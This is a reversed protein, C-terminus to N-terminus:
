GQMEYINLVECELLGTRTPSSYDNEIAVGGMVKAQVDFLGFPVDIVASGMLGGNTHVRGLFAPESMDHATDSSSTYTEYPPNDGETRATEIVARAEEVEAGRGLQFVQNLYNLSSPTSTSEQNTDEEQNIRSQLYSGVMNLSSVGTTSSENKLDGTLCLAFNSDDEHTFASIDWTGGTFENGDGDIPMQYYTDSVDGSGTAELSYRICDAYPGRMAKTVGSAKWMEKRAAHWKVAANKVTWNSQAGYADLIVSFDTKVSGANDLALM